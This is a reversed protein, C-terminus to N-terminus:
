PFNVMGVTIDWGESSLTGTKTSVSLNNKYVNLTYYATGTGYFYRVGYTYTGRPAQEEPWYAREPGGGDGPGSDGQDDFDIRGGEPTPGLSYGDRSCSLKQGHPDIVWLDIDPGEGGGTYSWTLTFAISGRGGPDQGEGSGNSSDSDDDGGGSALAIGLGLAGLAGAGIMLTKASIAGVATGGAAAEAGTTATGTETTGVEVAEPETAEPEIAEPETPEAEPTETDLAETSAIKIVETGFATVIAMFGISVITKEGTERNIVSLATGIAYVVTQGGKPVDPGEPECGVEVDPESFKVGILANPTEIDFSSDEQQHGPSLKARIWGWAMKIRSVRGGTATQSLEAIDLKTNESLELWSGDSLELEVTAGAQTEIIDGAILITGIGQEQGNVLVTGSVASITATPGTNKAIERTLLALLEASPEEDVPLNLDQQFQKIAATTKRGMIGDVPGPDYGLQQLLLQINKIMNTDSTTAIPQQALSASPIFSFSFIVLLVCALARSRFSSVQFNSSTNDM